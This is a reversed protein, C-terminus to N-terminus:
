RGNCTYLKFTTGGGNTSSGRSATIKISDLEEFESEEAGGEFASADEELPYSILYEFYTGEQNGLLPEDM